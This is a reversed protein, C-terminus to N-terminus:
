EIKVRPETLREYKKLLSRSYIIFIEFDMLKSGSNKTEEIMNIMRRTAELDEKADNKDNTPM